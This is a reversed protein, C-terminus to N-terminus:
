EKTDLFAAIYSVLGAMREVKDVDWGVVENEDWAGVMHEWSVVVHQNLWVNPAGIGSVVEAFPRTAAKKQSLKIGLEGTLKGVMWDEVWAGEEDAIIEVTFEDQLVAVM